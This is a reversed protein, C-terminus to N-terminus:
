FRVGLTLEYGSRENFWEMWDGPGAGRYASRYRVSTLVAPGNKWPKFQLGVGIRGYIGADTDTGSGSLNTLLRRDPDWVDTRGTRTSRSVGLGLEVFPAVRHRLPGLILTAGLQATSEGTISRRSACTTMVQDPGLCPEAMAVSDTRNIRPAFSAEAGFAGWSWRVPTYAVGFTPGARLKDFRPGAPGRWGSTVTWTGQAGAVAPLLSILAATLLYRM